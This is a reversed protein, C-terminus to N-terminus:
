SYEKEVPPAPTSVPAAPPRIPKLWIDCICITAGPKVRVDKYIIWGFISAAKTCLMSRHVKCFWAPQGTLPHDPCRKVVDVFTGDDITGSIIVAIDGPKCRLTM